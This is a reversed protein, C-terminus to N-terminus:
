IIVLCRTQHVSGEGPKNENADDDSAADEESVDAPNASFGPYFSYIYVM